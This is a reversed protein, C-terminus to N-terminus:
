RRAGVMEEPTKMKFQIMVLNNPDQDPLNPKDIPNLKNLDLNQKGKYSGTFVWFQVEDKLQERCYSRLFNSFPRSMLVTKKAISNGENDSYEQGDVKVFSKVLWFNMEGTRQNRTLVSFPVRNPGNRPYRIIDNVTERFDLHSKWGLDSLVEGLAMTLIADTFQVKKFRAKGLKDMQSTLSKILDPNDWMSTVKNETEPEKLDDATVLQNDDEENSETEDENSETESQDVEPENVKTENVKDGSQDVENVKTEEGSQDVENVKTEEGSQDVENEVIDSM